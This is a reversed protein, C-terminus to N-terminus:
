FTKLYEVIADKDAAPLSIGYEHGMNGNGPVSPTTAASGAAAPTPSTPVFGRAGSRVRRLRSLLRRAARGAREASRAADAGIRQAPVARAGLHRRAAPQRLRADQPVPSVTARTRFFLGYQNLAFTETTSDLRHRDTKIRDIDEVKGV